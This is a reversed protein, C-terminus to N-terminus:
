EEVFHRTNGLTVRRPEYFIWMKCLHHALSYIDLELALPNFWRTMSQICIQALSEWKPVIHWLPLNTNWDSSHGQEVFSSNRHKLAARRNWISQWTPPICHSGDQSGCLQLRFLVVTRYIYIQLSVTETKICRLRRRNLNSLKDIGEGVDTEM